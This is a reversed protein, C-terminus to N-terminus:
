GDTGGIGLRTIDTWVMWYQSLEEAGHRQYFWRARENDPEVNVCVRLSKRSAFWGALRTLLEAAAPGGRGEPAVLIWQLEGQCGFRTTLHGAIYGILEDEVEALFAVREALAHQPSHEGALYLSIRDQAAGGVWRSQERLRAMEPADALTAERYTIPRM